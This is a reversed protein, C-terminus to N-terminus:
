KITNLAEAIQVASKNLQDELQTGSLFIPKGIKCEGTCFPKPIEMKDWSNVTWYKSFEITIPIIPNDTQAGLYVAGRKVKHIPGKPGDPTIAISNGNSLAQKLKILASAGGRTTSGHISKIGFFRVAWAILRGDDHRSVLMKVTGCPGSNHKKLSMSLPAMMLQKGHWFVAIMPKDLKLQKFDNRKWRVTLFLLWIVFAAVSGLLYIKIFSKIRNM